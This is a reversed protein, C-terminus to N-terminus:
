IIGLMLFLGLIILLLWVLRMVSATSGHWTYQEVFRWPGTFDLM